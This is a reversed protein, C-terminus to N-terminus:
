ESPAVAAGCPPEISWVLHSGAARGATRYRERERGPAPGADGLDLAGCRTCWAGAWTFPRGGGDDHIGLTIEMWDHTQGEPM